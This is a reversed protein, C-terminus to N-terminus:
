SRNAVPALAFCSIGRRKMMRCAKLATKRDFGAFRARYYTRGDKRFVMTFGEKGRLLPRFRKLAEDIRKRAGDRAPFSGLQINWSRLRRELEPNRRSEADALQKEHMTVSSTVLEGDVPKGTRPEGGDERKGDVRPRSRDDTASSFSVQRGPEASRDARHANSVPRRSHLLASVPLLADSKTIVTENRERPAPMGVKRPFAGSGGAVPAPRVEMAVVGALSAVRAGTKPREVHQENGDSGTANGASKENEDVPAPKVSAFIRGEVKPMGAFGRVNRSNGESLAKMKGNAVPVTSKEVTPSPKMGPRPAVPGDSRRALAALRAIGEPRSRPMPAAVRRVLGALAPKPLHIKRSANRASEALRLRRKNWGPPMGAVAAIMTGRQLKRSRFMREILRAMYANRARSSPAGLVVAVVRRGNRGASAALNFGAARTYGTKLGDMGKVRGLLHNHNRYVRGHFRFYRLGFYRKYLKPFDRQIRLALTALDRATTVNKPWPLGSANRFTTRTMGMSRAVQTMRRAFRSESGAINEAIAVAIDNASKTLIARLAQDVTITSGPKLGLKSPQMSAAHRSIVLRSSFGYRGRRIERFLMYATMVKTISAPFRPSDANRAFLVRGTRADVAIAAFGQRASADRMGGPLIPLVGILILVAVFPILFSRLPRMSSSGTQWM